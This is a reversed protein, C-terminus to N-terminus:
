CLDALAPNSKWVGDGQSSGGAQGVDGGRGARGDVVQGNVAQGFISAAVAPSRGMDCVLTDRRYDPTFAVASFRRCPRRHFDDVFRQRFQRGVRHLSSRIRFLLSVPGKRALAQM